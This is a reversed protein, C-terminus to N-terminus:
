DGFLGPLMKIEVRGARLDVVPVLERVFPVLVTDQAEDGVRKIELLEAREGVVALVNGLEKGETSFVSLGVLDSVWWNDEPLDPLENKSVYVEFNTLAEADTRSQIEKLTLLFVDGRLKCERVTALRNEMGKASILVSKANLLLGPDSFRTRVKVTGKIGHCGVIRGLHIEYENSV